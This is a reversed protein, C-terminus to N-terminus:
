RENDPPVYDNMRLKRNIEELRVQIAYKDLDAVSVGTASVATPLGLVDAKAAGFRSKRKPPEGSGLSLVAYQILFCHLEKM